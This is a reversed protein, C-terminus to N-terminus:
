THWLLLLPSPFRPVADAVSAIPPCFPLCRANRIRRRRRRRTIRRRRRRRPMVSSLLLLSSLVAASLATAFLAVVHLATNVVSCRVIGPHLATTIVDCRVLGPVKIDVQSPRAVLQHLIHVRPHVKARPHCLQLLILHRAACSENASAEINYHAVSGTLVAM